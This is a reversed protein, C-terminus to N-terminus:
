IKLKVSAVVPFHDSPLSYRHYHERPIALRNGYQDRYLYAGSEEPDLKEVYKPNLLIYDLQHDTPKGERDFHVHTTRLEFPENIFDFVDKLGLNRIPTLDWNTEDYLCNNFDGSIVIPIEPFQKELRKYVKALFKAEAQRRLNGHPDIKDKDLHSKLHVLLIAFVPKIDNDPAYVLLESIDRSMKHSKILERRERQRLENEEVEHPYLFNIPHNKYTSHQYKFPLTKKVLYGVEIGRNSNGAQIIPHYREELYVDNFYELSEIGGIETLMYIDADIETITKAMWKIKDLSKYIGPNPAYESKVIFFNELNITCFKIKVAAM